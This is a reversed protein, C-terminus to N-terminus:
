GTPWRCGSGTEAAGDAAAHVERSDDQGPGKPCRDPHHGQAVLQGNRRWPTSRGSGTSAARHRASCRGFHHWRLTCCGAHRHSYGEDKEGSNNDIHSIVGTTMIRRRGFFPQPDLADSRLFSSDIRLGRPLVAFHAKLEQPAHPQTAESAGQGFGAIRGRRVAPEHAQRGSFLRAGEAGLAALSRVWYWHRVPGVSMPLEAPTARREASSAGPARM